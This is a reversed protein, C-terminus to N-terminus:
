RKRARWPKYGAPLQYQWVMKGARDVETVFSTSWNGAMVHGNRVATSSVTVSTQWLRKGELDFEAVGIQRLHDVLIRGKPTLDIWGGAQVDLGTAFRKVEKGAAGLRVCTGDATLFIMQGDPTKYAAVPHDIKIEIVTKGAADFEILGAPTCVFTNGDALRQVNCPPAPLDNKQWLVNGRFDRETIRLGGMEAILVRNGPLVHADVPYNLGDIQWRVKGSRDVEFVRSNAPNADAIAAIVTFGLLAPPLPRAALNTKAANDKWWTKWADRYKTRTAADEAPEMQPATAGALRHLIEEGKWLEGRPLEALLDILAPVAEKDAACGLAVAVRLRVELDPDALLKRVGARVEVDATGALVEGAIARRVPAADQLAKVLVPDGKGGTGALRRLAGAVEGRM